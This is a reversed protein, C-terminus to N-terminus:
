QRNSLKPDGRLYWGLDDVFEDGTSYSVLMREEPLTVNGQHPDLFVTIADYLTAPRSSELASQAAVEWPPM